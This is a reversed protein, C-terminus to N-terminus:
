GNLAPPAGHKLDDFGAVSEGDELTTASDGPTRGDSLMLLYASRTVSTTRARPARTHGEQVAVNGGICGQHM